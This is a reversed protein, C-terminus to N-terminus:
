LTILSAGFAVAIGPDANSWKDNNNLMAYHGSGAHGANFSLQSYGSPYSVTFTADDKLGIASQAFPVRNVTLLGSLGLPPFQSLSM